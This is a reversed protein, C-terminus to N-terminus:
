QKRERKGQIYRNTCRDDTSLLSLVLTPPNAPAHRTFQWSWAPKLFAITSMGIQKKDQGIPIMKWWGNQPREWKKAQWGTGNWASKNQFHVERGGQLERYATRFCVGSCSLMSVFYRWDRAFCVSPKLPASRVRNHLTALIPAILSCMDEKFSRVPAPPAEVRSEERFTWTSGLSASIDGGDGAATVIAEVVLGALVLLVARVEEGAPARVFTESASEDLGALPLQPSTSLRFCKWSASRLMRGETLGWSTAKKPGRLCM